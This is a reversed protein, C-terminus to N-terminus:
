ALTDITRKTKQRSKKYKTREPDMFKKKNNNM